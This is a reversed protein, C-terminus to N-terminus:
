RPLSLQSFPNVFCPIHFINIPIDLCLKFCIFSLIYMSIHSVRLKRQDAFIELEGWFEKKGEVFYCSTRMNITNLNNKIIKTKTKNKKKATADEIQM